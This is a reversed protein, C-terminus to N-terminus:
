SFFNLENNTAHNSSTDPEFLLPESLYIIVVGYKPSLRQESVAIILIQTVNRRFIATNLLNVLRHPRNEFALGFIREYYKQRRQRAVYLRMIM